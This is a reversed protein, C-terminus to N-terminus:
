EKDMLRYLVARKLNNVSKGTAVAIMLAVVTGFIFGLIILLELVGM